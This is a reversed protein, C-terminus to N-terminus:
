YAVTMQPLLVMQSQYVKLYFPKASFGPPLIISSGIGAEQQAYSVGTGCLILAVGLVCHTILAKM